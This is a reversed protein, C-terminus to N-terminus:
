HLQRSDFGSCFVRQGASVSFKVVRFTNVADVPEPGVVPRSSSVPTDALPDAGSRVTATSRVGVGPLTRHCTLLPSANTM